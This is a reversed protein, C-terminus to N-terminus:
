VNQHRITLIQKGNGFFYLSFGNKCYEDSHEEVYDGDEISYFDEVIEKSKIYYKKTQGEIEALVVKKCYYLGSYHIYTTELGTSSEKSM